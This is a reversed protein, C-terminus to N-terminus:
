CSSVPTAGGALGILWAVGDRYGDRAAIGHDIGPLVRREVIQGAACLRTLLTASDAIPVNEDADGHVILVPAASAVFGPTDAALLSAFPETTTPDARIYPAPTTPMSPGFCNEDMIGVLELASDTLVTPLAAEAEPYAAALGALIAVTLPSRDVDNVGAAVFGGVESSPAVVVTGLLALQPAWEAALQGAWLAGHGGQSFGVLGTQPAIYVGPIKHAALGADLISRAESIGVMFPHRGPSGLGEYDTSVLVFGDGSAHGALNTFDMAYTLASDEITRSPSCGDAIGTTGHGQLLMPFGGFPAPDRPVTVLGTVLIPAGAVSTSLYMVRYIPDFTNEVIQWRVLDGHAGAPIPDPFVYFAPDGQAFEQPSVPAAAHPSHGPSSALAQPGVSSVAILAAASAVIRRRWSTSVNAM